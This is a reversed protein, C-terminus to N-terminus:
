GSLAYRYVGFATGAVLSPKPDKTMALALITHSAGNLQQGHGLHQWDFRSTSTGYVGWGMTGTYIQKDGIGTALPMGHREPLGASIDQWTGASSLLWVGSGMTTLVVAHRPANIPLLAQTPITTPLGRTYPRWTRGDDTSRLLAPATGFVGAYATGPQWPVWTLAPVSSNGSSLVRTWTWQSGSQMGRYVGGFSGALIVPSAIPAVALSFIPNGSALVPSIPHWGSGAGRDAAYVVGDAGGAVFQSGDARAALSLVAVHPSTRERSWNRGGDTSAWIGDTTGALVRAAARPDTLLADVEETLSTQRWHGATYLPATVSVASTGGPAPAALQAAVVIILGIALALAIRAVPQRAAARPPPLAPRFAGGYAHGTHYGQRSPMPLPWCALAIVMLPLGSNFDTTMGTLIMGFAEFFYWLLLCVVISALLVPRVHEDGVVLLCIGLGLFIAILASNLPMELNTTSLALSRLVPDVLTTNLGGQGIGAGFVQSIQGPEWWFPQAQLVAMVIWFAGLIGRVQRRALLGDEPETADSSPYVALALLAYLLVAGPAGTLASGQGTLLMSMGEGGYWVVVSWLISAILTIKILAEDRGLLLVLGGVVQVMGIMLNVLFLHATTIQVIWELNREVLGPQGELMPKMVGNVMNMTWMHPQFQFLGDILWLLGLLQRLRHRSLLM